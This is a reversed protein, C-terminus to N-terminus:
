AIAFDLSHYLDHGQQELQGFHGANGDDALARAIGHAANEADAAVIGGM